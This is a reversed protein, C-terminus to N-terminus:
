LNRTSIVGLGGKLGLQSARLLVSTLLTEYDHLLVTDTINLLIINIM